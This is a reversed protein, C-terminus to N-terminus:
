WHLACWFPITELLGGNTTTNPPSGSERSELHPAILPHHATGNMMSLKCQLRLEPIRSAVCVWGQQM